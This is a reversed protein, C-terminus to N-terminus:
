IWCIQPTWRPWTKTSLSIWHSLWAFHPRVHLFLISRGNWKPLAWCRLLSQKRLFWTQCSGGIYSKLSWSSWRLYHRNKTVRFFCAEYIIKMSKWIGGCYHILGEYRRHRMIRYINGFILLTHNSAQEAKSIKIESFIMYPKTKSVSPWGHQRLWQDSYSGSIPLSTMAWGYWYGKCIKCKFVWNIVHIAWGFLLKRQSVTAQLYLFLKWWFILSLGQSM